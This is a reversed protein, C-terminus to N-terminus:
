SSTSRVWATARRRRWARPTGRRPDSEIIVPAAGGAVIETLWSACSTPAGPRCRSGSVEAALAEAIARGIGVSAGTVLATKDKLQLDM